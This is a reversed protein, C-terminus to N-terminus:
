NLILFLLPHYACRESGWIWLAWDANESLQGVQVNHTSSFILASQDVRWGNAWRLREDNKYVVLEGNMGYAGLWKINGNSYVLRYTFSFRTRWPHNLARSPIILLLSDELWDFQLARWQGDITENGPVDCWIEVRVGSLRANFHDDTSSFRASFYLDVPHVPLQLSTLNDLPPNFFISM